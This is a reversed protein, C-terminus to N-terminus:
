RSLEGGPPEGLGLMPVKDMIMGTSIAYWTGGAVRASCRNTLRGTGSTLMEHRM